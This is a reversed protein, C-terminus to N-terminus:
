LIMTPYFTLCMTVILGVSHLLWYGFGRLGRSTVLHILSAVPWSIFFLFQLVPLQPKGLLRRDIAFWLTASIAFALAGAVYLRANGPAILQAVGWFASLGYLAIVAYRRQIIRGADISETTSTATTM